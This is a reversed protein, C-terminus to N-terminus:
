NKLISGKLYIILNKLNLYINSNIYFYLFSRYKVIKLSIKIKIFFVIKLLSIDKILSISLSNNIIVLVM